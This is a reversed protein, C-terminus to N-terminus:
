DSSRIEAGLPVYRGGGAEYLMITGAPASPEDPPENTGSKQASTPFAYLALLAAACIFLLAGRDARSLQRLLRAARAAAVLALPV